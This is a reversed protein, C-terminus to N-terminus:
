HVGQHGGCGSSVTFVVGPLLVAAPLLLAEGHVAVQVVAGVVVEGGHAVFLVPVAASAQVVRRVEVAGGGAAATAARRAAAARHASAAALVPPPAGREGALLQQLQLLLEVALLVQRQGLAGLDRMRELQALNLHLDPELVPAGLPFPDLGPVDVVLGPLRAAVGLYHNRDRHMHAAEGDPTLVLLHFLGPRLAVRTRHAAM